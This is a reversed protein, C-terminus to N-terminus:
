AGFTVRLTPPPTRRIVERQGSVMRPVQWDLKRTATGSLTSTLTRVVLPRTAILPRLPEARTAVPEPATDITFRGEGQWTAVKM